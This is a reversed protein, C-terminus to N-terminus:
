ASTDKLLEHLLEREEDESEIVGDIWADRLRELIERFRPGPQLGLRILDNGDTRPRTNRWRDVFTEIRQKVIPLDFACIWLAHLAMDSADDLLRTIQSPLLTPDRLDDIMNLKRAFSAVSEGLKRTLSLRDCLANVGEAPLEVMLLHWYLTTLDYDSHQWPPRLKRCRAFFESLHDSILWANDIAVFAGCSELDVVTLEPAHESLILQFEHRIRDGSLRSITPAAAHLLAETQADITFDLRSALRMARFVRTPDDIFSRDHLVRIIGSELDARGGHPDVLRGRFAAPSLQLALANISFDRRALDRDITSPIVRPLAAPSPYTEERATAFDIQAETLGPSHRLNAAATADLIWKATAFPPHMHVSGGFEGALSHAFASADSELVFDLDLNQRGLLLDRIVGGVLFLSIDQDLAHRSIIQILTTASQGLIAM